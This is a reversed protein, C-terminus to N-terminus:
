DLMYTRSYDENNYKLTVNVVYIFSGDEDDTTTVEVTHQFQSVYYTEKNIRDIVYSRLVEVSPTLQWMFQQWNCGYNVNGLLETNETCFLIDLEQMAEDIPRYIFIDQNLALDIM